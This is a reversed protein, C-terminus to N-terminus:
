KSSGDQEDGQSGTMGLLISGLLASSEAEIKLFSLDRHPDQVPHNSFYGIYEELWSLAHFSGFHKGGPYCAPLDVREEATEGMIEDVRGVREKM